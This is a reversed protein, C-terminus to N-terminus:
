LPESDDQKKGRLLIETSKDFFLGCSDCINLIHMGEATELRLEATLEVRADCVPCKPKLINFM